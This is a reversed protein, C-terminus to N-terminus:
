SPQYTQGLLISGFGESFVGEEVLKGGAVRLLAVGSYEVSEGPSGVGEYDRQLVGTVSWPQAVRDGEAIAEGTTLTSGSFVELVSRGWAKRGEPDDCLVLEDVIDMNGANWQEDFYRRVLAKNAEESM